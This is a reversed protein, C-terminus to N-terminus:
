RASEIIVPSCIAPFWPPIIFVLTVCPTGPGSARIPWRRAAITASHLSAWVRSALARFVGARKQGTPALARRRGPDRAREQVLWGSAALAWRWSSLPVTWWRM